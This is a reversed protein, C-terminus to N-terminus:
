LLFPLVAACSLGAIVVAIEELNEKIMKWTNQLITEEEDPEFDLQESTGGDDISLTPAGNKYIGFISEFYKEWLKRMRARNMKLLNFAGKSRTANYCGIWFKTLWDKCNPLRRGRKYYGTPVICLSQLLEPGINLKSKFFSHITAQWDQLEEMFYVEQDGGDPDEVKNAFTLAIVTHKWLDKGFTETLKTMSKKDGTLLRTDDMKLCFIVLDMEGTLKKTIDALYLDDNERDDELGPSDWVRVEVDPVPKCTYQATETTSCVGKSRGEKAVPKGVLANVLSSKGVGSKGTILITFDKKYKKGFVDSIHSKLQADSPLKSLAMKGEDRLVTASPFPSLFRLTIHKLGETVNWSNFM